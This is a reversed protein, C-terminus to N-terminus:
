SGHHPEVSAADANNKSNVYGMGTHAALDRPNRHLSPQRRRDRSSAPPAALRRVRGLRPGRPARPAVVLPNAGQNALARRVAERDSAVGALRHGSLGDPLAALTSGEAAGAVFDQLERLLFRYGGVSILGGPPGDITLRGSVKDARSPYGTDIFGDSEIKLRPAGSREIGPPFAHHPVMGGALAITGGKTRKVDILLLGENPGRPTMTPGPAFAAAKGDAARRHALLGIEGFVLVDVVTSGTSRWANSAATREPSRWVSLITAPGSGSSGDSLRQVFPGPLVAIDHGGTFQAIFSAGDFPQYLALSGGGILWPVVTTALGAFSSLALAGLMATKASVRAELAICFGAAALEAHSRAVPVLGDPSVDFTVVAVHDAPNDPREIAVPAVETEGFVPDLNVVGDLHQEGFSCLFRITFTEAAIHMARGGHDVPGIRGATILARAGIRNLAHVAEIERWLLPLPVAIMGARLIGLLTLVGEVTNPLQLAVLADTNLGLDRLRKAIASVVRDAEAYTLRKPAGDTFEQRDLSDALAIADPNRELARRFLDDLTMRRLPNDSGADRSRTGLIV